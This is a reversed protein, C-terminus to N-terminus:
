KIFIHPPSWWPLWIRSGHRNYAHGRNLKKTCGHRANFSKRKFKSSSIVGSGISGGFSLAIGINNDGLVIFRRDRDPECYSYSCLFFIAIFTPSYAISLSGM